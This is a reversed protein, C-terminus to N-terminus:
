NVGFGLPLSGLFYCLDGDSDCVEAAPDQIVHSLALHGNM